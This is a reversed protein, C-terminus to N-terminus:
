IKYNSLGWIQHCLQQKEPLRKGCDGFRLALYHLPNGPSHGLQANTYLHLSTCLGYYEWKAVPAVAIGCRFLGTGAGLAM